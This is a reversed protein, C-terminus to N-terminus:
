AALRKMFEIRQHGIPFDDMRAFETYGRKAYFAPTRFSETEVWVSHCGRARAEDEGAKMLSTGVGQGRLAEDVWLYVIHLWGWVTVGTLGAVIKGDANRRVISLETYNHHPVHQALVHATLGNELADHVERSITDSVEFPSAM